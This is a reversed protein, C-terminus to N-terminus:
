PYFRSISKHRDIHSNPIKSTDHSRIVVSRAILTVGAMTLGSGSRRVGPLLQLLSALIQRLPTNTVATIMFLTEIGPLMKLYSM